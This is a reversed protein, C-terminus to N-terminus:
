AIAHEPVNKLNSMGTANTSYRYKMSSWQEQNDLLTKYINVL